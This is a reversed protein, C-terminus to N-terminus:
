EKLQYILLFFILNIRRVFNERPSRQVAWLPVPVGVQLTGVLIKTWQGKAAPKDM